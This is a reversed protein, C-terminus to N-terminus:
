SEEEDAYPNVDTKLRLYIPVGVLKFTKRFHAILYRRYSEALADLQKGHIVIILPHHGGLHAYRPRIRRGKVLPPQHAEIAKELSRTLKSTSIEQRSAAYTEQIASYLKPVGIDQLASVFCHRAFDTFGLRRDMARHVQEQESKDLGDWKNIALVFPAGMDIVMSLLRMDQETIGDQASLVMIVVDAKEIAQITKVVSFKEVAEDVRARRRVGATDILTYHKGRREFPIYISDRTTGPQDSVIVRDEGLIRNVLTSKGVNPRGVVAMALGQESKKEEPTAPVNALVQKMLRELGQKQTASITALRKFGFQHFEAEAIEPERGEAKNIVLLLKDQHPRLRQAIEQDVATPGSRADVMLLICDAEQIAQEVQQNTLEELVNKAEPVIGGTDVLIYAQQGIKGQGYQRDRTVGPLDAVLADRTGTLANFLTSKGVNPRGIIVIVPLM